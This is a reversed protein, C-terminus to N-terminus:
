GYILENQVIEDACNQINSMRGVWLMQKEAKLQETVSQAAAVQRIITELRERAASDVECLHEALKGSALLNVYLIRKHKKLYELRRQGWLGIHYEPEQPVIM